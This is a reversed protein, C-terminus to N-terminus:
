GDAREQYSINLFVFWVVVLVPWISGFSHWTKWHHSRDPELDKNMTELHQSQWTRPRLLLVSMQLWNSM